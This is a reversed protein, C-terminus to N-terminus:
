YKYTRRTNYFNYALLNLFFVSDQQDTNLLQVTACHVLCAIYIYCLVSTHEYLWQQLPFDILIVHESHTNTVKTDLM